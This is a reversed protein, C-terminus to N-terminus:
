HTHSVKSIIELIENSPSPKRPELGKHSIRGEGAVKMLCENKRKIEREQWMNGQIQMSEGTASATTQPKEATMAKGLIKGPAKPQGWETDVAECMVANVEKETASIKIANLLLPTGLLDKCDLNENSLQEGTTSHFHICTEVASSFPFYWGDTLTGRLAKLTFSGAPSIVLGAGQVGPLM